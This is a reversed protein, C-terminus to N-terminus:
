HKGPGEDSGCDCYGYPERIDWPGAGEVPPGTVCFPRGSLGHPTCSHHNVGLVQFPFMCPSGAADGGCTPTQECFEFADEGATLTVAPAYEETTYQASAPREKQPWTWRSGKFKITTELCSFQIGSTLTAFEDDYTNLVGVDRDYNVNTDCADSAQADLAVGKVINQLMCKTHATTKWEAVRDAHSFQNGVQQVQDLQNTHVSVKECKNQLDRGFECMALKRSAHKTLCNAKQESMKQQEAYFAVKAEAAKNQAEICYYKEKQFQKQMNNFDLELDKVVKEADINDFKTLAAECKKEEINCSFPAVNIPAFTYSKAAARAECPKTQEEERLDMTKKANEWTVTQEQLQGICEYWTNDNDDAIKKENVAETTSARVGNMTSDVATQAQGHAVRIKEEVDNEISKVVREVIGQMTTDYDPTDSHGELARLHSMVEEDANGQRLLSGINGMVKGVAKAREVKMNSRIADATLVL